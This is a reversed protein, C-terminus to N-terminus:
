STHALQVSHTLESSVRKQRAAPSRPAPAASADRRSSCLVPATRSRGPSHRWQAAQRGASVNPECSHGQMAEEWGSVWGQQEAVCTRWPMMTTPGAPLPVDVRMSHRAAASVSSPVLCTMQRMFGLAMVAGWINPRMSAAVPAHARTHQWASGLLYTGADASQSDMSVDGACAVPGVADESHQPPPSGLGLVLVSPQHQISWHIRNPDLREVSAQHAGPERQLQFTSHM